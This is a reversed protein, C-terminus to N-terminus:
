CLGDASSALVRVCRPLGLRWLSLGGGCWGPGHSCGADRSGARGQRKGMSSHQRSGRDAATDTARDGGGGVKASMNVLYVVPKATLLQWSNLIEIERASWDGLRVDKGDRVWALVQADPM